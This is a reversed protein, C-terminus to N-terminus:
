ESRMLGVVKGVGLSRWCQCPGVHRATCQTTSSYSIIVWALKALSFTSHFVVLGRNLARHAVHLGDESPFHYFQVDNELIECCLALFEIGQKCM